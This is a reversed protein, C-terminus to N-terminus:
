RKYDSLNVRKRAGLRVSLQRSMTNSSIFNFDGKLQPVHGALVAPHILAGIAEKLEKAAKDLGHTKVIDFFADFDIAKKYQVILQSKLARLHKETVYLGSYASMFEAHGLSGSLKRTALDSPYLVRLVTAWNENM